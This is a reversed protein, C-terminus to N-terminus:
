NEQKNRFFAHLWGVDRLEEIAIKKDLCIPHSDASAFRIHWRDRSITWEQCM